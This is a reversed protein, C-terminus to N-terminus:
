VQSNQWVALFISDRHRLKRIMFYPYYFCKARPTTTICLCAESNNHTQNWIVAIFHIVFKQNRTCIFTYVISYDILHAIADHRFFLVYEKTLFIKIALFILALWWTLRWCTTITKDIFPRVKSKYLVCFRCLVTFRLVIFHPISISLFYLAQCVALLHNSNTM